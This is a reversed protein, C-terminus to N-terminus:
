PISVCLKYSRIAGRDVNMLICNVRSLPNLGVM